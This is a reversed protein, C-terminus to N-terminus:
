NRSILVGYREATNIIKDVADSESGDDNVIIHDLLFPLVSGNRRKERFCENFNLEYIDRGEAKKLWSCFKLGSSAYEDAYLVIRWEKEPEFSKEKISMASILLIIKMYAQAYWETTYDVRPRSNYLRKLNVLFRQIERRLLLDDDKDIYLVPSFVFFVGKAFDASDIIKNTIEIATGKSKAYNEWMYERGHRKDDASTHETLCAIYVKKKELDLGAMINQITFSFGLDSFIKNFEDQIAAESLLDSLQTRGFDVEKEDSMSSVNSLFLTESSIIKQINESSSYHAFRSGTSKIQDERRAAYPFLIKSVQGSEVPDSIDIKEKIDM